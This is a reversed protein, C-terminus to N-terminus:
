ESLWAAFFTALEHYIPARVEWVEDALTRLKTWRFAEFEADSAAALDVSVGAHLRVLFWTPVQARGLHKSRAREPLEYALWRPHEAIVEVADPPIGTEEHLERLAAARPSEGGDLGGQPLQWHGPKGSRELALVEGDANSVVVGVNARFFTDPHRKGM